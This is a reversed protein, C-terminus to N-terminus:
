LTYVDWWHMSAFWLFGAQQRLRAESKLFYAPFEWEM